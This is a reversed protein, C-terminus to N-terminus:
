ANQGLVLFYTNLSLAVLAAIGLIVTVAIVGVAIYFRLITMM